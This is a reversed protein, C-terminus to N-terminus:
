QWPATLYMGQPPKDVADVMFAPIQGCFEDACLYVGNAGMTIIIIEVGRQRLTNAASEAATTDAISIGTLQHAEWVNPTLITVSRLIDDALAQAPAPNLIVKVKNQRAIMAATQVTELPSELQLILADASEIAASANIVDRPSLNMNAGLAVAISNEGDAAVFIEAIGSPASKDKIVYKVNIHDQKFGKIAQDGFMDAGVRAVFTVAGGARAAAVAQNAGKGGAAMTFKSGIITEGPNPIQPVQIIMDTNSSGVVVIKPQVM